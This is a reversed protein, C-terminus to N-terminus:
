VSKKKVKERYGSAHKSWGHSAMMNTAEAYPDEFSHFSGFVRSIFQYGCKCVFLNYPSDKPDDSPWIKSGLYEKFLGHDAVPKKSFRLNNNM